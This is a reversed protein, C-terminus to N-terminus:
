ELPEHPTTFSIPASTVEVRSVALPDIMIDIRYVVKVRASFSTAERCRLTCATSDSPSMVDHWDQCGEQLYTPVINEILDRDPLVWTMVCVLLATVPGLPDIEPGTVTGTCRVNPNLCGSILQDLPKQTFQGSSLKGHLVARTVVSSSASQNPRQVVFALNLLSRPNVGCHQIVFETVARALSLQQNMALADFSDFHELRSPLM